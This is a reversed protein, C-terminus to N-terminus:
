GRHRHYCLVTSYRFAVASFVNTEKKQLKQVGSGPVWRMSAFLAQVALWPWPMGSSPRGGGPPHGLLLVLARPIFM